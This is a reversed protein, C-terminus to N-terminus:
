KNCNTTFAAMRFQTSPAARASAYGHFILGIGWDIVEQLGSTGGVLRLLADDCLRRRRPPPAAEGEQAVYTGLPPYIPTSVLGQFGLLGSLHGQYNSQQRRSFPALTRHRGATKIPGLSGRSLRM